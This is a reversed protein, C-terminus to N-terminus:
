GSSSPPLTSSPPHLSPLSFSSANKKPKKLLPPPAVPLFLFFPKAKGEKGKKETGANWEEEM